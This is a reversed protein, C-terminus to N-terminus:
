LFVEVGHINLSQRLESDPDVGLYGKAAPAYQLILFLWYRPGRTVLRFAGVM